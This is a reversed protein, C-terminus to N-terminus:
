LNGGKLDNNSTYKIMYSEIFNKNNIEVVLNELVNPISDNRTILMTYVSSSDTKIENVLKRSITFGYQNEMVTKGFANGKNYIVGKKPIKSIARYFKEQKILDEFKKHFVLPESPSNNLIEPEDKVCGILLLGALNFFLFLILKYKM